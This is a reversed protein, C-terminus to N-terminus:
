IDVLVSKNLITNVQYLVEEQMAYEYTIKENLYKVEEDIEYYLHEM